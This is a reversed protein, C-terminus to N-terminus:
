RFVTPGLFLTPYQALRAFVPRPDDQLDVNFGVSSFHCAQITADGVYPKKWALNQEDLREQRGLPQRRVVARPTEHESRGVESAAVRAIIVGIKPPEVSNSTKFIALRRCTVELMRPDRASSPLNSAKSRASVHVLIRDIPAANQAGDQM